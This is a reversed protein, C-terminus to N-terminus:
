RSREDTHIERLITMIESIMRKIEAFQAEGHGFQIASERTMAQRREECTKETVVKESHAKELAEVRTKLNGYTKGYGIFTLAWGAVAGIITWDKGDIPM